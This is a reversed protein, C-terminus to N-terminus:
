ILHDSLFCQRSIGRINGEGSKRRWLNEPHLLMLWIQPFPHFLDHQRFIIQCVAQGSREAGIIRVGGTHQEKIHLVPFPRLLHKLDAM